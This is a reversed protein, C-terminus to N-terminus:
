RLLLFPVVDDLWYMPKTGKRLSNFLVLDFYVPDAILKVALQRPVSWSDTDHVSAHHSRCLSLFQEPRALAFQRLPGGSIEHIETAETEPVGDLCRCIACNPNEERYQNRISDVVSKPLKVFHNQSFSEDAFEKAEAHEM